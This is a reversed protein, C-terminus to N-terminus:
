AHSGGDSSRHDTPPALDAVPDGPTLRITRTPFAISSGAREIASMFDILVEERIAQFEDWNSTQFWAMVDIDLSSEGFQKFHVVIADPWIKPHERLVRRLAAVIERLQAATTSYELGITCALRIRDRATYSEIRQNALEGNPITMITRDLTRIRTSRLGIKEVTGVFDFIRVFDGERMPQDIGISVAGFVNEVTKQAALAIVLGGIGLGAILSAVSVGAQSLAVLGGMALVTVKAFRSGLALLSRSAPRQAAWQRQELTRQGLDIARFTGWMVLLVTIVGIVDRLLTTAATALSLWALAARFLQIAILSSVPAGLRAALQDDWTARTRRALHLWIAQLIRMVIVGLIVACALSIIVLAVPSAVADRVTNTIETM